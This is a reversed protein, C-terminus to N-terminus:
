SNPTQLVFQPIFNLYHAGLLLGQYQYKKVLFSCRASLWDSGLMQLVLCSASPKNSKNQLMCVRISVSMIISIVHDASCLMFQLMCVSMIPRVSCSRSARPNLLLNTITCHKYLTALTSTVMTLM